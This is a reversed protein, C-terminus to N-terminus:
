TGDEAGLRGLLTSARAGYVPSTVLSVLADRAAGRDGLVLRAQVLQWLAQERIPPLPSDAADDLPGVAQHPEGDLLLSSGELLRAQHRRPWGSEALSSAEAFWTAARGWAEDRYADLGAAYALDAGSAAAARLEVRPASLPELVALTTTPDAQHESWLLLTAVVALGLAPVLVRPRRWDAFWRFLRGRQPPAAVADLGARAADAFRGPDSLLLAAAPAADYLEELLDPDALLAAEVRARDHPDLLGLEYAALLDDAPLPKQERDPM